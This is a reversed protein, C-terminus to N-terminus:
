DKPRKFFACMFTINKGVDTWTSVLEWGDEGLLNMTYTRPFGSQIDVTPKSDLRELAWVGKDENTFFATLYEWKQM